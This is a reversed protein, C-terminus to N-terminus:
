GVDFCGSANVRGCSDDPQVAQAGFPVIECRARQERQGTSWRSPAGAIPSSYGPGQIQDAARVIAAVGQACSPGDRGMPPVTVVHALESTLVTKWHLEVHDRLGPVVLITPQVHNNM